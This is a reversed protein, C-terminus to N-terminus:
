VAMSRLHPPSIIRSVFRFIQSRFTLPCDNLDSPVFFNFIPKRV